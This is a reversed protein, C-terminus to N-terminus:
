NFGDNQCKEIQKWFGNDPKNAAVRLAHWHDLQIAFNISSNLLVKQMSIKRQVYRIKFRNQGKYHLVQHHHRDSHHKILLIQGPLIDFNVLLCSFNQWIFRFLEKGYLGLEAAHLGTRQLNSSNQGKCVSFLHIWMKNKNGRSM